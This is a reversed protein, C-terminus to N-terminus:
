GEAFGSFLAAAVPIILMTAIKVWWPMIAQQDMGKLIMLMMVFAAYGVACLVWFAGSGLIEDFEM